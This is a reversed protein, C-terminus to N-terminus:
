SDGIWLLMRTIKYNYNYNSVQIATTEGPALNSIYDSDSCLMIDGGYLKYNISLWDVDCNSDNRVRFQIDGEATMGEVSVITIGNETYPLKPIEIGKYYTTPSKGCLTCVGHSMIHERKTGETKGCVSCYKAKQCTASVWKHGAPITEIEELGCVSCVKKEQGNKTCTSEKITSINWNHYLQPIKSEYSYNCQTCTFKRIGPETCTAAKVVEENFRHIVCPEPNSVFVAIISITIIAIGLVISTVAIKKKKSLSKKAKTNAIYKKGCKRCYDEDETLTRGCKRCIREQPIETAKKVPAGCKICFDSEEPIINKCKVCIKEADVSKMEENTNEVQNNESM